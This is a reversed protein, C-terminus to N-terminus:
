MVGHLVGTGLGGDIHIVQGTVFGGRESGLFTVLAAVEELTGMRGMPIRAVINARASEPWTAAMPMEIPGRAVCNVAIRAHAIELATARPRKLAQRPPPIARM